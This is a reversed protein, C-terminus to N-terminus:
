FAFINELEHGVGSDNNDRETIRDALDLIEKAANKMSVGLGSNIIMDADNLDDGFTIIEEKKLSIKKSYEEIGNWKSTKCDIIELIPSVGVLKEMLYMNFKNPFKEEIRKKIEELKNKEGVYVVSLVNPNDISKLCDVKRYANDLKSIYGEYNYKKHCYEGVIDFDYEGYKDVHVVPSINFERTEDILSHFLGKLMYNSKILSDDKLRRIINGNNALITINEIGLQRAFFKASSYRRGTAIVIEVRNKNLIKLVEKNKKTIKKDDTLLTGDLDIAIMKYNM